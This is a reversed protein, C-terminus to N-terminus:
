GRGVRAKVAHRVGSLEAEFFRESFKGTWGISLENLVHKRKLTFPYESGSNFGVDCTFGGVYGCERSARLVAENYNGNPYAVFEVSKCLRSEIAEKSLRLEANLQGGDVRDLLAHSVTHSGFEVGGAAMNAVDDWSLMASSTAAASHGLLAELQALRQELAPEDLQKWMATIDAIVPQRLCVPVSAVQQILQEMSVTVWSGRVDRGRSEQFVLPYLLSALRDHWFRKRTGIYGTTLFIIAPARYAQLVPFAHEYNDKWGDDFTILCSRDPFPKRSRIIEGVEEASLLRFRRKVYEVQREFQDPTVVLSDPWPMDSTVRHYTLVVLRDSDSRFLTYAPGLSAWLSQRLLVSFHPGSKSM